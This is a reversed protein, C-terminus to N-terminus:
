WGLWNLTAAYPRRFLNWGLPYRDAQIRATGHLGPSLGIESDDLLVKAVFVNKDDVIESRPHISQITAEILRLPFADLRVRVPMEPRIYSYDEEPIAVEITMQDLPAVEFLTQGQELHMGEADELDGSVVYGSIPSRLELEQKKLHLLDLDLTLSQVEYQAVKAKGFIESALYEDREKEAQLIKAQMQDIQVQVDHTDLKALLQGQEVLQGPLVLVEDLLGAFPAVVFRREVPEVVCSCKSQYHVPIWLAASLCAMLLGLSLGRKQIAQELLSQVSQLLWGKQTRGVLGIASAVPSQAAKIFRQIQTDDMNEAVGSFMWAGVIKGQSDRLPSSYLKNSGFETAYQKHALLGARRTNETVPWAAFEDVAISEQLVAQAMTVRNDRMNISNMGSIATVTCHRTNSACLGVTVQRVGLYTQLYDTLQQCAQQSTSASEIQSILDILAAMQELQHQLRQLEPSHAAQQIQPFDEIAAILQDEITNTSM